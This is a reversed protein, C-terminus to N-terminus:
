FSFQFRLFLKYGFSSEVCLRPRPRFGALDVQRLDGTPAAGTISTLAACDARHGALTAMTEGAPRCGRRESSGRTVMDDAPATM